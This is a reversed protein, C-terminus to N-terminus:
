EAAASLRIFLDELALQRQVNRPLSRRLRKFAEIVEVVRSRSSLNGISRLEELLDNQIMRAPAVRAFYVDQLLAEVCELWILFAERNKKDKAVYSVISSAETFSGRGLLLSVFRLAKERLERYIEADFDLAAALSGRSLAASLRAEDSGRRQVRVLYDEIQHQPIASFHLTRSRSHITALLEFPKTTVLIIVTSSPPEELTKLLSNHAADRMVEAPDLVVVRYRGEFPQYSIETILDRVQGIGITTKAPEILRVDPHQSSLIRCNACGGCPFDGRPSLCSIYRSQLTAATKRCATCDGCAGDKTPALCNLDKALLLALTCKGVGEPGAFIMAHPLRDQEVARRLLRVVQGNGIFSKLSVPVAIQRNQEQV